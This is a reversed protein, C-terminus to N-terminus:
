PMQHWSQMVYPPRSEDLIAFLLGVAPAERYEQLAAISFLPTPNRRRLTESQGTPPGASTTPMGRIALRGIKYYLFRMVFVAFQRTAFIVARTITAHRLLRDIRLHLGWVHWRMACKCGRQFM